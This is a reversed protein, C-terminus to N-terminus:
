SLMQAFLSKDNGGRAQLVLTVSYVPAGFWLVAKLTLPCLSSGVQVKGKQWGKGKRYLFGSRGLHLVPEAFLLQM